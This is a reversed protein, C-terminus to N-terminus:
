PARLRWQCLQFYSALLSLKECPLSNRRFNDANLDRASLFKRWGQSLGFFDLFILSLPALKHRAPQSGLWPAPPKQWYKSIVSTSGSEKRTSFFSLIKLYTYSLLTRKSNCGCSRISGRRGTHELRHANWTAAVTSLRDRWSINKAVSTHSGNRFVTRVETKVCSVANSYKGLKACHSGM